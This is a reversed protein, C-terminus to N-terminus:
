EKKCQKCYWPAKSRTEAASIKVCKIHFWEKCRNCSVMKKGNDPMRCICYVKIREVPRRTVGWYKKTSPFPTLKKSELAKILHSRMLSQDYYLSRPHLGHCIACANAIAFLGCDSPGVQQQVATYNLSFTNKNTHLLGAIIEIISHSLQLDMSDFVEVTNPSLGVTSVTIWHSSRLCQVFERHGQVYFSNTVQLIPDQLGSINPYQQQLLYQAVHLHKDNLWEGTAIVDRDSTYLTIQAVNIWPVPLHKESQVHSLEIIEKKGETSSLNNVCSKPPHCYASCPIHNAKCPCKKTACRTKCSCSSSITSTPLNTFSPLTCPPSQKNTSQANSLVTLNTPSLVKSPSRQGTSSQSSSLCQVKPPSPQSPQTSSLVQSTPSHVKPPSPQSTSLQSSSLPRVKLLSPQSIPVTTSLLTHSTSPQTSSLLAQSIPSHVKTPSPPSTSLQSSSLPQM